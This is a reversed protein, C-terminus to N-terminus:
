LIRGHGPPRWRTLTNGPAGPYTTEDINTQSSKILTTVTSQVRPEPVRLAQSSMNVKVCANVSDTVLLNEFEAEDKSLCVCMPHNLEHPMSGKTGIISKLKGKNSFIQLRSNESDVVIIDGSIFSSFQM